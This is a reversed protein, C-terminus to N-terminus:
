RWQTLQEVPVALAKVLRGRWGSCYGTAFLWVGRGKPVEDVQFIGQAQHTM